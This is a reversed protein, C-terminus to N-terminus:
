SSAKCNMLLGVLNQFQLEQLTDVLNTWWTKSSWTRCTCCPNAGSQLPCSNSRGWHTIDSLVLSKDLVGVWFFLLGYEVYICLLYTFNGYYSMAATNRAISHAGFSQTSPMQEFVQLQDLQVAFNWCSDCHIVVFNLLLTLILWHSCYRPPLLFISRFSWLLSSLNGM